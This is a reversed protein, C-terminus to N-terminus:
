MVHGGPRAAILGVTGVLTNFARHQEVDVLGGARLRELLRGHAHDRTTDFGDLLRVSGFLVRMLVNAPRVWDALHLEGEDALVRDIEAAARLKQESTLHHFVLSSSVRDFAGDPVPLATASGEVFTVDVREREARERARALIAPDPDIGVVELHPYLRKAAIVLTGTGCGLDLLTAARDLHAAALLAQKVARERSTLRVVSDYAPTLVGFRLAPIFSERATRVGDSARSEGM